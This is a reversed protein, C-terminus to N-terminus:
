KLKKVSCPEGRSINVEHSIPIEKGEEDYFKKSALKVIEDDQMLVNVFDAAMLNADQQRKLAEKNIKSILEKAKESNVYKKNSKQILQGEFVKKVEPMKIVMGM